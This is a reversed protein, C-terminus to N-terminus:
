AADSHWPANSRQRRSDVNTGADDESVEVLGRWPAAARLQTGKGPASHLEVVGGIQAVREAIGRLGFHGEAEAQERRDASFGVGNDTIILEIHSDTSRLILQVQSAKAHRQINEMAESAVMFLEYRVLEDAASSHQDTVVLELEFSNRQRYDDCLQNLLDALSRSDPERRLQSILARAEAIAGVSLESLEAAYVKVAAPNNAMIAPLATATMNIAQLSKALTDHLQRALRNREASTVAETVASRLVQRSEREAVGAQNIAYGVWWLMLLAASFLQQNESRDIALYGLTLGVMIVGGLLPKTWVGILLASIMVVIVFSGGSLGAAVLLLVADLILITPHNNVFKRAQESVLLYASSIALVLQVVIGIWSAPVSIVAAIFLAFLRLFLASRTVEETVGKARSSKGAQNEDASKAETLFESGLQTFESPKSEPRGVVFRM